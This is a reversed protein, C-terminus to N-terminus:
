ESLVYQLFLNIKGSTLAESGVTLQINRSATLKIASAIAGTPICAVRGSYSNAFAAAKLDATANADLSFKGSGTSSGVAQVVDFFCEKIIAGAPLTLNESLWENKFTYSTSAAGGSYAYSWTGKVGWQSAENLNSGLSAERAVASSRDLKYADGTPLIAFASSAVLMISLIFNKMELDGNHNFSLPLPRTGM